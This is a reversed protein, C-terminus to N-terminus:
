LEFILIKLAGARFYVRMKSKYSISSEGEGKGRGWPLPNQDTAPKEIRWNQIKLQLKENKM